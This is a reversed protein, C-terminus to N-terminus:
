LVSGNLYDKCTKLQRKHIYPSANAFIGRVDLLKYFIQKGM